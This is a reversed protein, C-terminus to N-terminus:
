PLETKLGDHRSVHKRESSMKNGHGKKRNKDFFMMIDQTVLGLGLRIRFKVRGRIRVIHTQTITNLM